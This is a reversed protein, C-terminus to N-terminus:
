STCFLVPYLRFHRLCGETENTLSHSSQSDEALNIELDIKVARNRTVGGGGGERGPWDHGMGMGMGEEVKGARIRVKDKVIVM